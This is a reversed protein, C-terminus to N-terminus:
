PVVPLATIYLGLYLARTPLLFPQREKDRIRVRAKLLINNYDDVFFKLVEETFSNSGQLVFAGYM